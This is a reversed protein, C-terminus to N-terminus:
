VLCLLVFLGWVCLWVGSGMWAEAGRKAVHEVKSVSVLSVTAAQHLVPSRSSCTVFVGGGTRVGVGMSMNNCVGPHMCMNMVCM